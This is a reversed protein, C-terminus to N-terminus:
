HRVRSPVLGLRGGHDVILREVRRTPVETRRQTAAVAAAAVVNVGHHRLVSVSEAMTAGTTTIDDVVIVRDGPGLDPIKALGLAGAVNRGRADASLGAQDRVPRRHRLWRASTSVLGAQTLTAAAVRALSAVTDDGRQRVASRRSPAPVLVWRSTVCSADDGEYSSASAECATLAAEALLAGLSGSLGRRGREKHAILM